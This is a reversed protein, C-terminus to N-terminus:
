HTVNGGQSLTKSSRCRKHQKAQQRENRAVLVFLSASRLTALIHANADYRWQIRDFGRITAAVPLRYGALARLPTFAAASTCEQCLEHVGFTSWFDVTKGSWGFDVPFLQPRHQKPNKYKKQVVRVFCCGHRRQRPERGTDGARDDRSNIGHM